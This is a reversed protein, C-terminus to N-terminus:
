KNAGTAAANVDLELKREGALSNHMSYNGEHCAFEFVDGDYKAMPLLIEVRDKFTAPDTVEATYHLQTDSVRTIKEVVVKDYATGADYFSQTKDTFNRTEIVLTEGEWRGRSIGLWQRVRDDLPQMDTLPIIRADHIHEIMLVVYDKTQVIRLYNNDGNPLIPVTIGIICREFLGRDEPGNLGIGGFLFRVPHGLDLDRGIGFAPNIRLIGDQLEPMKGNEPYTILSSRLNEVHSQYDLWFKNHVGVGANLATDFMKERNANLTAVDEPTLFKKEIFEKPRELPIDSSFNWVGQLDPQGLGNRPAQYVISSQDASSYPMAMLIAVLTTCTAVGIPIRITIRRM